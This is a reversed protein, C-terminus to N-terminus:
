VICACEAELITERCLYIGLLGRKVVRMLKIKLTMFDVAERFTNGLQLQKKLYVGGFTNLRRCPLEPDLPDLNVSRRSVRSRRM